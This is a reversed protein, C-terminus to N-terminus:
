LACPDVAEDLVFADNRNAAASSASRMSLSERVGDRGGFRADPARFRGFHYYGRTTRAKRACAYRMAMFVFWLNRKHGLRRGTLTLLQQRQRAKARVTARM